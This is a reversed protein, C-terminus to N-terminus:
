VGHLSHLNQPIGSLRAQSPGRVPTCAVILSCQVQHQLKTRVADQGVDVARIGRALFDATTHHARAILDREPFVDFSLNPTQKRKPPPEKRHRVWAVVKHSKDVRRHLIGDINFKAM